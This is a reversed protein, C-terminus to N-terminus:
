RVHGVMATEGRLRLYEEVTRDWEGRAKLLVEAFERIAGHGGRAETVYHVVKRVEPVANQVGVPLGVRTLLPLDPLDDGMFAAEEWTVSHRALTKEFAPLKRAQDDQVVDSVGLEEARLTTARSMRGSVIVIEIGADQLLRIGVGDQIDFRKLEAPRDGVMGIYVGADTMVGDVDLGLLKIRAAGEPDVIGERLPAM